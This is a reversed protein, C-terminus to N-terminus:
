RVAYGRLGNEVLDFAAEARAVADEYMADPTEGTLLRRHNETILANRAGLLQAAAVQAIVPDGTEEALGAALLDASRAGFSHARILLAPTDQILQRVRVVHQDDNLGVSADHAGLAEIFHRRLAAVASEGAARERVVRAPDGIHEEMPGLALDEKTAVYNFVTMKSVDAAAAIEAVSVQDFGRESFLDIAVSWLRRRTQLKKRERLGLEQTM